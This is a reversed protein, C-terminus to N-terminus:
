AGLFRRRGCGIRSEHGAALTLSYFMLEVVGRHRPLKPAIAPAAGVGGRPKEDLVKTRCERRAVNAVGGQEIDAAAEAGNVVGQEVLAYRSGNV